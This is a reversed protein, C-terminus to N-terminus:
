GAVRAEVDQAIVDCVGLFLTALGVLVFKRKM